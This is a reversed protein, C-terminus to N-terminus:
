FLVHMHLLIATCVNYVRLDISLYNARSVLHRISGVTHYIAGVVCAFSIYLIRAFPLSLLFRLRSSGGRLFLMHQILVRQSM